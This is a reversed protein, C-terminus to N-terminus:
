TLSSCFSRIVECGERLIQQSTATSIRFYGPTGYASGAISGVGAELLKSVFTADNDIVQGDGAKRGLLDRCSVFAYFAGDPKQCHLGEISNIAAIVLDRRVEYERRYAAVADQPGNLAEITAAQSISCPNSTSQTQLKSMESVIVAPGGAYGIRWGTMAYAKSVGNVTLVRDAIQPAAEAMTSFPIGTYNLHEYIDDMLVHARPYREVIKALDQLEQKTYISGTPNNPSNLVLWKTRDSIVSKLQEPTLKFSSSEDTPVIIPTAGWLSVMSPYSVWCPTPIVAEDGEELTVAFANYIIHKAGNSVIIENPKYSLNNERAFKRIIADKLAPTGDVNTYHTDGARIAEIAAHKINDPTEFDPEGTTLDLLKVGRARMERAKQAAMNSASRPTRAMRAAIPSAVSTDPSVDAKTNM